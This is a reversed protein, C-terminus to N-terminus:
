YILSPDLSYTTAVAFTFLGEPSSRQFARIVKKTIADQTDLTTEIGPSLLLHGLPSIHLANPM